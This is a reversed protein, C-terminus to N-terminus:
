IKKASIIFSSSFPILALKNKEMMILNSIKRIEKDGKNYIAPSVPHYNIPSIENIKFNHKSLLSNIQGPTFQNRVNVKIGTTTPQSFPTEEFYSKNNKLFKSLTLKNLDIAEKLFRKYTKLKVEFETFKNLSFLNYLRNRSGLILIGNKTLNDYCYSIIKNIEEFSLYELFGVASIVDFKEKPQYNFIDDDIFSLNKKIFKKNAINIMKSSFDIGVSQKTIKSAYFCLDGSGCGIDLLKKKKYKKIMEIVFSNRQIITNPIKNTSFDARLSWSKAEKEFFVQTQKQQKSM